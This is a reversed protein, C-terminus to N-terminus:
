GLCGRPATRDSPATTFSRAPRMARSSKTLRRLSTSQPTLRSHCMTPLSLSSEAFKRKGSDFALSSTSKNCVNQGDSLTVSHPGAGWIYHLKDGPMANVAFPVSRHTETALPKVVAVVSRIASRRPHARRHHHAHRPRWLGNWQSTPRKWPRGRGV